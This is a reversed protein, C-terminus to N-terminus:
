INKFSFLDHKLAAIDDGSGDSVLPPYKAFDAM